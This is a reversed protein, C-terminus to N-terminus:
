PPMALGQKLGCVAHPDVPSRQLPKGLPVGTVRDEPQTTARLGQDLKKHPGGDLEIAADPRTSHFTASPSGPIGGGLRRFAARKTPAATAQLQHGRLIPAHAHAGGERADRWGGQERPANVM